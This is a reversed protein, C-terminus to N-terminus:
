RVARAASEARQFARPSVGQAARFARSFAFVSSFGCAEAVEGVRPADAQQLM